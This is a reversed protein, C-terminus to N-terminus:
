FLCSQATVAAGETAITLFNKAFPSLATFLSQLARRSKQWTGADKLTPKFTELAANFTERFAIDNFDHEGTLKAFEFQCGRSGSFQKIAEQLFKAAEFYRAKARQTDSSERDISANEDQPVKIAPSSANSSGSSDSAQAEDRQFIAKIHDRKRPKTAM